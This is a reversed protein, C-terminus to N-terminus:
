TSIPRKNGIFNGYSRAFLCGAIGANKQTGLTGPNINGIFMAMRPLRGMKLRVGMQDIDNARGLVDRCNAWLVFFM